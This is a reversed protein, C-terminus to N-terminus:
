FSCRQLCLGQAYGAETCRTMCVYDVQRPRQVPVPAAGALCQGMCNGDNGCVQRCQQNARIRDYEQYPNVQASAPLALLLLLTFARM